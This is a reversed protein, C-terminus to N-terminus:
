KMKLVCMCMCMRASHVWEPYDNPFNPSTFNMDVDRIATLDSGCQGSSGTSVSCMTLLYPQRWGSPSCCNHSSSEPHLPAWTTIARRTEPISCLQVSVAISLTILGAAGEMHIIVQYLTVMSTAIEVKGSSFSSSAWMYARMGDCIRKKM